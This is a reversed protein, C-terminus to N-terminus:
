IAEKVMVDYCLHDGNDTEIVHYETEKYGRKIYIKKAPLSADLEITKYQRFIKDEAFNMLSRGLGKHQYEPMVFLRNIHNQSITVTGAFKGDAKLLYVDGAEIDSTIREDSHHLCFFEVAGDPYYKPYVTRITKQTIKSVTELESMSATIIETKM